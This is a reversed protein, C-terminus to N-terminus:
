DWDVSLGPSLAGTLGSGIPAALGIGRNAERKLWTLARKDDKLLPTLKDLCRQNHDKLWTKEEKTLMSEKVMRTQIPVCTLREFGLWISGNFEAKTRVRRVVLASEIRIGWHNPKYFGPENTVVHGPVLPEDSSFGHEGEHVTLFSGFGHGTGHLYNMGDKWLARRALVDLQRGSTGQPFIASDIAIHGQLVKTYAECMEADPRGFHVTRTTDCTGDLYQGGSDNLYPLTMDIVRATGRRPSYHPLAANPGSASINEYALGMFYKNHRRFETLRQAAEYETIEYGSQFKHDLWALFRVFSAGDRLYARKFGDIETENKLSVMQEAFSPVVTCKYHSLVLSATYSTQPSILLKGEGWERKRLFTWLDSYPRREIGLKELYAAVTDNVKSGELFLITQELGIFLYAHFLPNYPIDSGRLNLIYAITPLSGILTGVHMQSPKPEVGKSYSPMDPPQDKIWGRVRNLKSSAQEGTFEIPQLFVPDVSKPPKDRWVFDILNQIPYVMKSQRDLKANLRTAKEYSLMRGDIGIRSSQARSTLWDIWDKAQGTEGARVLVWNSDLQQQAQQWYRSDVILYADTPTIIATGQTGSFGSIFERRKDSAAVYESQHADESPVIYYHLDEKAMLGRLEDLRPGSDIREKPEEVDNIKREYASGVLTSSSDSPRFGPRSAGSGSRGLDRTAGSGSRGLDRSAGSGSRGLDRSAGSGSRGLDPSRDQGLSRHSRHTRQTDQTSRTNSRSVNQNQSNRDQSSRTNSRSVNHSNSRTLNQSPLYVPVPAMSPPRETMEDVDQVLPEKKDKKGLGWGWRGSLASKKTGTMTNSRKLEKSPSGVVIDRPIEDYKESDSVFTLNDPLTSSSSYSHNRKFKEPPVPPFSGSAGTRMAGGTASTPLLSSTSSHDM